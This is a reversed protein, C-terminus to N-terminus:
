RVVWNDREWKRRQYNERYKARKKKEQEIRLEEKNTEWNSHIKLGHKTTFKRQCKFCVLIPKHKLLPFSPNFIEM